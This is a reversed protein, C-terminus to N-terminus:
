RTLINKMYILNNDICRKMNFNAYGLKLVSNEKIWKLKKPENYDIYIPQKITYVKTTYKISNGM